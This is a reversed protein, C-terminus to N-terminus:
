APALMGVDAVTGVSVSRGDGLALRAQRNAAYALRCRRRHHAAGERSRV